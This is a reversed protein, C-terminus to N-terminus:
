PAATPYRPTWRKKGSKAEVERKLWMLMIPIGHAVYHVNKIKDRVRAAAKADGGFELGMHTLYLDEVDGNKEVNVRRAARLAARKDGAHVAFLADLVAISDGFGSVRSALKRYAQRAQDAYRLVAKRQSGKLQEARLRLYFARHWFDKLQVQTTRKREPMTWTGRDGVTRMEYCELLAGSVDGQAARLMMLNNHFWFEQGHDRRKAAAPLRDIIIAAAREFDGRYAEITAEYYTVKNLSEWDRKAASRAAKVLRSAAALDGGRISAQVKGLATDVTETVGKASVASAWFLLLTAALAYASASQLRNM